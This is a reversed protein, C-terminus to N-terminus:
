ITQNFYGCSKLVGVLMRKYDEPGDIINDIDNENIPAIGQICNNGKRNILQAYDNILKQTYFRTLVEEKNM